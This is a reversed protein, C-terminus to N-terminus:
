ILSDIAAGTLRPDLTGERQRNEDVPQKGAAGGGGAIEQPTCELDARRACLFPFPGSASSLSDLSSCSRARVSSKLTTPLKFRSTVRLAKSTTATRRPARKQRCFSSM